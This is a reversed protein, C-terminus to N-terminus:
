PPLAARRACLRTVAEAVLGATAIANTAHPITDTTAIERCGASELQQQADGAFVAHVAVCCPAAFGRERLRAAATVMTRGSSIIDDVLVPTSGRWHGLDPLMIEVDRDGHRKKELAVHPADAGAGVAAAWQESEADPGVILPAAVHARIWQALLPATRVAECPIRYLQSLAARRHLHPDVTVLWDFADSLLAALQTSTVAEGDRFRRDQRMYALYPAILGTRTAGLDRATRAAFLLRLIKADPDNLTCVFAVERGRCDGGLRVYSEGDPFRRSELALADAGLRAGLEAAYRENGPLACVLLSM